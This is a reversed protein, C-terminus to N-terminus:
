DDGFPYTLTFYTVECGESDDWVSHESTPAVARLAERVAATVDPDPERQYLEVRMTPHSAFNRDDAYVEGHDEECWVCWPLEPARGTPWAWMTFPLGTSGLAGAIAEAATM